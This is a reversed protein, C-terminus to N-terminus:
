RIEACVGLHVLHGFKEAGAAGNTEVDPTPIGRRLM